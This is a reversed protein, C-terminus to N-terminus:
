VLIPLRRADSKAERRMASLQSHFPHAKNLDLNLPLLVERIVQAERVWPEPHIEWTVFANDQMWRSILQEGAGFTLRTGSGVRRLPIGLRDALLCGLTMRLTSGEANGQYHYRV